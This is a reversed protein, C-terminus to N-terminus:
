QSFFAKFVAPFFIWLVSTDTSWLVSLVIWCQYVPARRRFLWNILLLCCTRSDGTVATPFHSWCVGQLFFRTPLLFVVLFVVWFGSVLGMLVKQIVDFTNVFEDGYMLAFHVVQTDAVKTTCCCYDERADTCSTNILLHGVEQWWGKTCWVVGDLSSSFNSM